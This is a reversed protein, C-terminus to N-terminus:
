LRQNKSRLHGVLTKRTVRAKFDSTRTSLVEGNEKIPKSIIISWGLFNLNLVRWFTREAVTGDEGERLYPLTPKTIVRGRRIDAFRINRIFSKKFREARRESTVRLAKQTEIKGCRGMDLFGFPIRIPLPTPLSEVQYVLTLLPM